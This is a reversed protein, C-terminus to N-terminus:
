GRDTKEWNPLIKGYQTAMEKYERRGILRLKKDPHNELFLAIRM